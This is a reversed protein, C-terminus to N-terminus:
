DMANVDTEDAAHNDTHAEPAPASRENSEDGGEEDEEEEESSEEESSEEESEEDDGEEDEQDEDEDGAKTDSIVQILPGKSQQGQEQQELETEADPSLLAEYEVLSLQVDAKTLTKKYEKLQLGLAHLEDNTCSQIWVCYDDLYLKNLIYHTDTHEFIDRVRCLCRVVCRKGLILIKTVDTLLRQALPWVRM